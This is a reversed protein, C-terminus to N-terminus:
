VAAKVLRSKVYDIAAVDAPRVGNLLALYFSVMNGILVARLMSAVMNKGGLALRYVPLRQEELFETTIDYRRRTREPLHADDLLLTALNDGIVAQGGLGAITNHHLEPLEEAVSFVEANENLQTKWRRAAPALHGAGVILPVKTHLFRALQKAPNHEEACAMALQAGLAELGGAAARVDDRIQIAGASEAIAVLRVFGHGFASRPEPAFNYVLAPVGAAEALRLLEGGTTVVAIRTSRARAEAFVSLTEETNGSHSCVAVLTRHDAWSPLAYGRVTYVPMTGQEFCLAQLFDGAIASGGMGAVIIRKVKRYSQPLVVDRCDQLAACVHAGLGINREYAGDPAFTTLLRGDDLETM